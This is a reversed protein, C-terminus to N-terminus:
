VGVASSYNRAKNLQASDVVKRRILIEELTRGLKAEEKRGLSADYEAKRTADSLCLMARALENLLQQSQAGYQGAAYKRVVANLKRYNSRIKEADDEFMKLRLLQYYNLPRNTDPIHLWDRYVDLEQPMAKM